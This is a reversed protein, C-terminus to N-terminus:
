IHTSVFDRIIKESDVQRLLDQEISLLSLMNLCEQSMTSRLHNKILKLKSFSREGSCNTVMLCLFIRLAIETNVFTSRLGNDVIFRYLQIEIKSCTCCMTNTADDPDEKDDGEELEPEDRSDSGSPSAELAEKGLKTQLAGKFQVLEERLEHQLDSNYHSVLKSASQRIEADPLSEIKRLFAFLDALEAYAEKRKSLAAALSDIIVIFTDTRFKDRPQLHIETDADSDDYRRNRRRVRKSVEARYNECRSM